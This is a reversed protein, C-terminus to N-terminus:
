AADEVTVWEVNRESDCDACYWDGWADSVEWSQTISNWEATAQVTLSDGGCDCCIPKERSM